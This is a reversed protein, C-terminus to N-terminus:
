QALHISFSISIYKLLLLMELYADQAEKEAPATKQEKKETTEVKKEETKSTTEAKSANANM